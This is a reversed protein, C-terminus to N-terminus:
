KIKKLKANFCTRVTNFGGCLFTGPLANIGNEFVKLYSVCFDVLCENAFFEYIDPLIFIAVFQIIFFLVQGGNRYEYVIGM